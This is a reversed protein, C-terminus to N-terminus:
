QQRGLWAIADDGQLLKVTDGEANVELEPGELPRGSLVIPQGDATFHQILEVVTGTPPQRVELHYAFCRGESESLGFRALDGAPMVVNDEGPTVIVADPQWHMSQSGAFVIQVAIRLAATVEYAIVPDLEVGGESLREWFARRALAHTLEPARLPTETM